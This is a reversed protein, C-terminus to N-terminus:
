TPLALGRLRFRDDYAEFVGGLLWFWFVFFRVPIEYKVLHLVHAHVKLFVRFPFFRHCIADGVFNGTRLARGGILLSFLFGRSRSAQSPAAYAVPLGGTHQSSM